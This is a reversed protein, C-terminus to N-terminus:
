AFELSGDDYLNAADWSISKIPNIDVLLKVPRINKRFTGYLNKPFNKDDSSGNPIFKFIDICDLKISKKSNIIEVALFSSSKGMWSGVEVFHAGNGFIKVIDTYIREYNFTGEITNYFHNMM